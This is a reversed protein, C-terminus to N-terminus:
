SFFQTLLSGCAFQRFAHIIINHYPNDEMRCKPFRTIPNGLDRLRKIVIRTIQTMLTLRSESLNDMAGEVIGIKEPTLNYTSPIDSHNLITLM